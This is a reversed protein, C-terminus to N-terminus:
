SFARYSYIVQLLNNKKIELVVKCYSLSSLVDTLPWKQGTKSIVFCGESDGILAFDQDQEYIKISDTALRRILQRATEPVYETVIGLENVGQFLKSATLKFSYTPLDNRGIFLIVNGNNDQCYGAYTYRNLLAIQKKGFNQPVLDRLQYYDKCIDLLADPLNIALYHPAVAIQVAQFTLKTWGLQITLHETSESIISLGLHETYFARTGVPDNTYLEIELFKM